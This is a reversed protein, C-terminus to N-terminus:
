KRIIVSWAELKKDLRMTMAPSTSVLRAYERGGLADIGVKKSFIEFSKAGNFFVREIGPYEAFLTEFDNPVEERINSDLSGKRSCYGIVDWLAIGHSKLFEKKEEYSGLKDSGYLSSLIDWFMNNPNGYYEQKELSRVSPISGLILIKSDDYIIPAFSSILPMLIDSGNHAM